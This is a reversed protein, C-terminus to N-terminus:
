FYTSVYVQGGIAFRLPQNINIFMDFYMRAGIAVSEGVFYDLGGGAGPGFFFNGYIADRFIYIGALHLNVYPRIDEELFLYRAGFQGGTAFVLGGGGTSTVFAKQYLLMLPVRLYIDFGNELYYGGELTIPLGWDILENEGMFKFGGFGLGLSRNAFSGTGAAAPAATLLAAALVVTTLTKRM